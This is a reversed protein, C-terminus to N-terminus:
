GRRKGAATSMFEYNGQLNNMDIESLFAWFWQFNPSYQVHCIRDFPDWSIDSKSTSKINVQVVGKKLM